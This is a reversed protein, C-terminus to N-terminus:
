DVLEFDATKSSESEEVTVTLGSTDPKLYKKPVALNSDGIKALEAPPIEHLPQKYAEIAVRYRGATLGRGSPTEFSGDDQCTAQAGSVNQGAEPFFNVVAGKVPEGKYTVKGSVPITRPGGSGGGCGVWALCTGVAIWSLLSTPSRFTVM